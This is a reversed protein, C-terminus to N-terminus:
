KIYKRLFRTRYGNIEKNISKELDKHYGIFQRKPMGSLGENHRKAYPTTSTLEVRGKTKDKKVQISARLIGTDILIRGTKRKSKPDRKKWRSGFFGEDAFNQIASRRAEAGLIDLIGNRFETKLANSM